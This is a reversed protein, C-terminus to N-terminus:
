RIESYRLGKPVIKETVEGKKKGNVQQLILKRCKFVRQLEDIICDVVKFKQKNNFSIVSGKHPYNYM